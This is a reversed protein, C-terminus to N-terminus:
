EELISVHSPSFLFRVETKEVNGVDTSRSGRSEYGQLLFLLREYGFWNVQKPSAGSRESDLLKKHERRFQNKLMQIKKEIDSVSIKYKNAHMEYADVKKNRNKYDVCRVEWLCPTSHLDEM